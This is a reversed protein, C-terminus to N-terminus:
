VVYEEEKNYGAAVLAVFAGLMVTLIGLIILALKGEPASWVIAFKSM